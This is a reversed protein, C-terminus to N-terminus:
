KVVEKNPNASTVEDVHPLWHPTKKLPGPLEVSTGIRRNTPKLEVIGLM